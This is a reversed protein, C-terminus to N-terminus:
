TGRRQKWLKSIREVVVSVISKDDNKVFRGQGYNLSAVVMKRDGNLPLKIKSEEETV